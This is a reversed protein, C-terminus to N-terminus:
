IGVGLKPNQIKRVVKRNQKYYSEKIFGHYRSDKSSYLSREGYICAYLVFPAWKKQFEWFIYIHRVFKYSLKSNKSIFSVLIKLFRFFHIYPSIYIHRVIVTPHIIRWVWDIIFGRELLLRISQSKRFRLLELSFCYSQTKSEFFTVFCLEGLSM